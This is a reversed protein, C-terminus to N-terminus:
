TEVLLEVTAVLGFHDSLLFPIRKSRPSDFGVGLEPPTPDEADEVDFDFPAKDMKGRATPRPPTPPRGLHERERESLAVLRQACTDGFRDIGVARWASLRALVRDYRMHERPGIYPNLTSDFTWGREAHLAPWLDLYEPAILKLMDNDLPSHPAM